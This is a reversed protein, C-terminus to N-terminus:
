QAAAVTHGFVVLQEADFLLQTLTSYISIFLNRMIELYLSNIEWIGNLSSHRLVSRSSEPKLCAKEVGNLERQVIGYGALRRLRSNGVADEGKLPIFLRFM